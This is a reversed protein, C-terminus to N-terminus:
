AELTPEDPASLSLVAGVVAPSASIKAELARLRVALRPEPDDGTLDVDGVVFIMRPGVVELRLYTVRAVEPAALLARIAAARVEPEAEQGVLYRRNRNILVVAVVGLLLGILISGVADPVSSGTVEHLGLGAAAIVVGILAASDEAFVARLTPDSTALVHDILDRQLSAAEPKAQRVSQLFSTGELVFSVALVIYGIIFDSASEPHILEGVGQSVSVVAGAVFLGLAAFLSWVYAERGYGMPHAPDVPRRSRRNAMLLFIENGSDAWSHAAEAVLSASGTLVAAATKAIAILVNATFAVIVTTLSESQGPDRPLPVGRLLEGSAPDAGEATVQEGDRESAM